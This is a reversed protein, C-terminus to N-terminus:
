RSTRRRRSTRCSRRRRARRRITAAASSRASAATPASASSRASRISTRCRCIGARTRSRIAVSNPQPRASCRPGTRSPCRRRRTSTRARARRVPQRRTQHRRAPQRRHREHRLAQRVRRLAVRARRVHHGLGAGHPRLRHRGEQRLAARQPEEDPLRVAPLALDARELPRRRQRRRHRAPVLRAKADAARGPQRQQPDDAHRRLREPVSSPAVHLATRGARADDPFRDAYRAVSRARARAGRPGRRRAAAGHHRRDLRLRRAGRRGASADHGDPGAALRTPGDPEGAGAARARQAADGVRSLRLARGPVRDDELRGHGQQRRLDPRRLLRGQTNQLLTTFFVKSDVGELQVDGSEMGKLMTDQDEPSLKAFVAGAHERGVLQDIAALAARYLAAPTFRSQYGQEPTGKPWPGGLYFHDGRGYPGSLQRDIFFPVNAEVGGPGLEDNPILRAVLANVLTLEVPTFFAFETGTVMPPVDATNEAWPLKATSPAPRRVSSATM